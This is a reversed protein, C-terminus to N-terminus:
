KTASVLLTPAWEEGHEELNRLLEHFQTQLKAKRPKPKLQKLRRTIREKGHKRVDTPYPISYDIIKAEV